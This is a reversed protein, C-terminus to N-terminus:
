AALALRATPLVTLWSSPHAVRALKRVPTEAKEDAQPRVWGPVPGFLMRRESELSHFFPQRRLVHRWTEHIRSTLLCVGFEVGPCPREEGIMESAFVKRYFAAHSPRVLSFAHDARFHASAMAALRVTVYSLQPLERGEDPCVAFRTPDIITAGRDLMPEVIDPFALRSMGVRNEPTVLNFRISSVMRGRHHLAFLMAGPADDHEDHVMRARNAGMHGAARYARYRFRYVAERDEALGVPRVEIENLRELMRRSFASERHHAVACEFDKTDM